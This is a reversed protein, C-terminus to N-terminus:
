SAASPRDNTVTLAGPGRSLMPARARVTTRRALGPHSLSSSLHHLGRRRGALPRREVPAQAREAADRGIVTDAGVGHLKRALQRKASMLGILAIEDAGGLEDSQPSAQDLLDGGLPERSQRSRCDDADGAAREHDETAAIRGAEAPEDIRDAVRDLFRRKFVKRAVDAPLRKEDSAPDAAGAHIRALKAHAPEQRRDPSIATREAM